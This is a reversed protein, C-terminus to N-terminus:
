GRRQERHLVPEDPAEFRRGSLHPSRRMSKRGAPRLRPLSTSRSLLRAHRLGRLLGCGLGLAEFADDLFPALAEVAVGDLERGEESVQVARRHQLAKGVVLTLTR